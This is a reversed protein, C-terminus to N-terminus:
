HCHSHKMRQALLDPFNVTMGDVGCSYAHEMLDETYVGWARVYFGLEHYRNVTEQTLSNAPPCLEEGNIAQLKGVPDLEDEHYLFGVRYRPNYAKAIKLSEYNFSTLVAKERIGFTDLMDIVKREIQMQKLEIAFSLNRFSFYRLFDQLAVIIDYKDRSPNFVHLNLLENYNYDAISGNGDTTRSIDSDHFLVLVGDKTERVDTEIGNADMYLASYFASFTNEPFYASAGRHAYNIFM